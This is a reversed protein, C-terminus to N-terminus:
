CFILSICNTETKFKYSDKWWWNWNWYNLTINNDCAFSMQEHILRKWLWPFNELDEIWLLCNLEWERWEDLMLEFWIIESNKKMVLFKSKRWHKISEKIILELERNYKDWLVSYINEWQSEDFEKKKLKEIGRDIVKFISNFNNNDIDYIYSNFWNENSYEKQPKRFNTRRKNKHTKLLYDEFDEFDNWNFKYVNSQFCLRVWKIWSKFSSFEEIDWKEILPNNVLWFWWSIRIWKDILFDKNENLESLLDKINTSRDKHIISYDNSLISLWIWYFWEWSSSWHTNWKKLLLVFSRTEISIVSDDILSENLKIKYIWFVKLTKEKDHIKIM